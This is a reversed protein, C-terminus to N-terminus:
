DPEELGALRRLQDDSLNLKELEDATWRQRPAHAEIEVAARPRGYLYNLTLEVCKFAVGDDESDILKRLRAVAPADLPALLERIEKTVRNPVGPPRGSNERFGGAMHFSRRSKQQNNKVM